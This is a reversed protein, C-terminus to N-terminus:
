QLRAIEQVMSAATLFKTLKERQSTLDPPDSLLHTIFAVLRDADRQYAEWSETWRSPYRFQPLYMERYSLRDPVIPICGALVGEMCGIGLTEQLAASFVIKSQYLMRHYEQKTASIGVPVFPKMGLRDSLDLFIRPQKEPALRSTHIMADQKPPPSPFSLISATMTSHPQGSLLLNSPPVGGFLNDAILFCHFETAAYVRDYVSFLSREFDTIWPTGSFARGLFDHPDYFGAHAIGHLNIPIDALATMYRLMFVTPNWFDTYLFSDGAKIEGNHLLRAISAVQEAKWVNTGIFDLFAGPSLTRAVSEGLITETHLGAAELEAPVSAIWECTYRSEIPELAVIWVTSAM